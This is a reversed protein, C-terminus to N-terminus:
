EYAQNKQIDIDQIKYDIRKTSGKKGEKKRTMGSKWVYM